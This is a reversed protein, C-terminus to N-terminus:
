FYPGIYTLSMFLMLLPSMYTFFAKGIMSTNCPYYLGCNGLEKQLGRFKLTKPSLLGMIFPLFLDNTIFKWLGALNFWIVIKRQLTPVINTGHSIANFPLRLPIQISCAQGKMKCQRDCFHYLFSLQLGMLMYDQLDSMSLNSPEPLSKLPQIIISTGITCSYPIDGVLVYDGVVAYAYTPSSSSSGRTNCPIIPIYYDDRISQECNMLVIIYSLKSVWPSYPSYAGISHLPSSILCNEKKRGPDVLRITSNQYNIQTVLYKGGHLNIMTRNNECILEYEPYGCSPPDDQLRFPYSINRMDGCSSPSCIQYKHHKAVCVSLFCAHIVVTMLGVGVLQAERLM